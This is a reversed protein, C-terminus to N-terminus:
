APESARRKPGGERRASSELKEEGRTCLTDGFWRRWLAKYRAIANAGSAFCAFVLVSTTACTYVLVDSEEDQQEASAFSSGSIPVGTIDSHMNFIAFPVTILVAVICFWTMRRFLHDMGDSAGDPGGPSLPPKAHLSGEGNDTLPVATNDTAGGGISTRPSKLAGYRVGVLHLFGSRRKCFCAISLSTYVATALALSAVTADYAILGAFALPNLNTVNLAWNLMLVAVAIPLAITIGVDYLFAHGAAQEELRAVRRHLDMAMALVSTYASAGFVDTIFSRSVNIAAVRAVTRESMDVGAAQAAETTTANAATLLYVYVGDYGTPCAVNLVLNFVLSVVPVLMLDAALVLLGLCQSTLNGYIVSVCLVTTGAALPATVSLPMIKRVAISRHPFIAPLETGFCAFGLISSIGNVYMIVDSYADNLHAVAAPEGTSTSSVDVYLNFTAYPVTCTTVIACFCMVRRFLHDLEAAAGTPPPPAPSFPQVENDTHSVMNKASIFAPPGVLRLFDSRRRCFIVISLMTYVAIALSVASLAVDFALLAAYGLLNHGTARFDWVLMPAAMVLPLIISIGVDRIVAYGDAQGELKSVRRYLDMALSLAATYASTGLTGLLASRALRLRAVLGVTDESLDLGTADGETTRNGAAVLLYFYVGDYGMPCAVNLAGNVAVSSVALLILTSALILLSLCRSSLNAYVVALSLLTSTAAIFALLSYM